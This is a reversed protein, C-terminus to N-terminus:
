RGKRIKAKPKPPEVPLVDIEGGTKPDVGIVARVAEEASHGLRMAVLAGQAGSGIAAHGKVRVGPWGGDALYLVGGETFLVEADTIDPPDDNSGSVLWALAQAVKFLDGAAGAVDGNPLRACKVVQVTSSSDTAYSDAALLGDRFAVTTM